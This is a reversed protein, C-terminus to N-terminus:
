VDTKRANIMDKNRIQMGIWKILRRILSICDNRNPIKGPVTFFRQNVILLCALNQNKIFNHKNFGVPTFDYTNSKMWVYTHSFSYKM